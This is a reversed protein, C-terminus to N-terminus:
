KLRALIRPFVIAFIIVCIIAATADSISEAWYVGMSGLTRPLLLVLPVLLILKRLVAIFISIGAQEMCLLMTQCTRQLGFLTMGYFFVPMVEKILKVLSEDSTFVYAIAEPFLIVFLTCLFNFVTMIVLIIWFAEKIRGVNGKGYNYSIIPMFGQSFGMLPVSILLLAAQIISMASIHLDGYAKLTGNIVFTIVAETSSMIFPSVGLVLIAGVIKWNIRLSSLDLRLTASRSSLFYLVAGASICQSIVSAIAAGKIGMDFTFIFLPDLTINAVAGAVVAWMAVAPRGQANIFANLGTTCMVFFTGLLYINLYDVAHVVTVESAGTALLIPEMWTYMVGMTLVSFFLLIVTSNGLIKKARERDGKGLAISALPAGAMSAVMAFGTILIIIAGTVGVGALADTGIGEIHGIFVRDVIGYLLNILQAAVAPMSMKLILPLMRETGMREEYLNQTM